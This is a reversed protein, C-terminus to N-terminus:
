GGLFALLSVGGPIGMERRKLYPMWVNKIKTSGLSGKEAMVLSSISARCSRASGMRAVLVSSVRLSSGLVLLGSSSGM